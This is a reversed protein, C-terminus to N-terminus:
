VDTLSELLRVAVPVGALVARHRAREPDALYDRYAGDTPFSLVHVESTGAPNRLRRELRGGYRDLMPLVADEYRQFARVGDAPVDLVAVLLVRGEDAV